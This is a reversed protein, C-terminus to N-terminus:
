RASWAVWTVLVLIGLAAAAVAPGLERKVAARVGLGSFTGVLVALLMPRLREGERLFGLAAALPAVVYIGVMGALMLLLVFGIVTDLGGVAQRLVELPSGHGRRKQLHGCSSCRKAQTGSHGALIPEDAGASLIRGESIM